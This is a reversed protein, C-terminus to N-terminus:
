TPLLGNMLIGVGGEPKVGGATGPAGPTGDGASKVPVMNMPPEGVGGIGAGLPQVPGCGVTKMPEAAPDDGAPGKAM